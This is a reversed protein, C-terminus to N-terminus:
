LPLAGVLMLLGSAVEGMVTWKAAASVPHFDGYGVTAITVSSFYLADLQSALPQAPTQSDIVGGDTWLYIGGFAAVLASLLIPLLVFAYTRTPLYPLVEWRENRHNKVARGYPRRVLGPTSAIACCRLLSFVFLNTIVISVLGAIASAG